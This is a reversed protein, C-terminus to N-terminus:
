HPPPVTWTGLQVWGTVQGGNDVAFLYVNKTGTYGSLFTLTVTLTLSQGSATVAASSASASCQSNSISGSGGISVPGTFGSIDDNALYLSGTSRFYAVQCSNTLSATSGVLLYL